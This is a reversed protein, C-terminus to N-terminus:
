RRFPPKKKFLRRVLDTLHQWYSKVFFGAGVMSAIVIQILYSGSGPDLYAHVGKISSAMFVMTFISIAALRPRSHKAQM